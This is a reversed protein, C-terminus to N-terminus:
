SPPRLPRPWYRYQGANQWHKSRARVCCDPAPAPLRLLLRLWPPRQRLQKAKWRLRPRASPRLSGAETMLLEAREADYRADRCADCGAVHDLLEAPASGDLVSALEEVVQACSVHSNETM